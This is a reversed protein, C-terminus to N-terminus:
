MTILVPIVLPRKATKKLLMKRMVDTVQSKLGDFDFPRGNKKIYSDVTRQVTRRAENILTKEEKLYIFGRSIIDPSKRLQGTKPNLSIVILFIGDASLIQRDRIVIDQVKGISFGDVTVLDSMAKAKLKVLKSGKDQIEIIGGDESVVIHEQPMGLSKALNAHLRLMYHSGHQPVFFKPELTEHLWKLEERNGHGSGHVYLESNRYTVIHAGSRAIEDKLRAVATENGPVISASLVVTDHESFALTKHTKNAMRMLAAFEEGQSGTSLILVKHPPIKMSEEASIMTGPQPVFIGAQEAVGLNTRMSRGELVIHRGHKEAIKLLATLRDVQSAFAGLIIRGNTGAVIKELDRHVQWEPTSFGENEVNTSDCMMLLNDEQGLKGYVGKEEDSVEGDVHDLKFDAQNIVNGYPTEVVVGMSDPITHTIGFFRVYQDGLKIRDSTEVVNIDLPPNAKFEEQRKQIMLSTFSRCYIPPNGIRPFVYAIGGTHDLHGHTIIVGRIKDKRDELYKTNPIIYDIGPTNQDKFTFGCDIVIIDDGIEIASMNKGIAEFGGITVIRINGPELDPIADSRDATNLRHKHGGVKTQTTPTHSRRNSSRHKNNNSRSRSPRRPKSRGDQNNSSSNNSGSSGSKRRPRREKLTTTTVKRGDSKGSSTFTKTNARQRSNNNKNM